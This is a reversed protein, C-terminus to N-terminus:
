AAGGKGAFLPMAEREANAIVRRAWCAELSEPNLNPKRLIDTAIEFDVARQGQIAKRGHELRRPTGTTKM